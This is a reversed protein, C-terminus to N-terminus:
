TIGLVIGAHLRGHAILPYNITGVDDVAVSRKLAVQGTEPTGEVVSIHTGMPFTYKPTKDCAREDVFPENGVLM